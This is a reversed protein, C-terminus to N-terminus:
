EWELVMTETEAEAIDVLVVRAVPEVRLARRSHCVRVHLPVHLHHNLLTLTLMLDANVANLHLLMQEVIKNAVVMPQLEEYHCCHGGHRGSTV